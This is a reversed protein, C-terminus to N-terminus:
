QQQQQQLLQQQQLQLQQQHLQQQLQQQQNITVIARTLNNQNEIERASQQIDLLEAALDVNQVTQSLYTLQKQEEQKRQNEMLLQTYAIDRRAMEMQTTLVADAATAALAMEYAHQMQMLDNQYKMHM